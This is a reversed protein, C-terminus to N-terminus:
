RLKSIKALQKMEALTVKISQDATIIKNMLERDSSTFSKSAEARKMYISLVKGTPSMIKLERYEEDFSQKDIMLTIDEGKAVSLVDRVIINNMGLREKALKIAWSAKDSKEIRIFQKSHHLTDPNVEYKMGNAKCDKIFLQMVERWNKNALFLVDQKTSQLAENIHETISKM